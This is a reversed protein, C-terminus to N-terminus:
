AHDSGVITTACYRSPIRSPFRLQLQRNAILPIGLAISWRLSLIMTFEEFRPIESTRSVLRVGQPATAITAQVALTFLKYVHTVFIVYLGLTQGYGAGCRHGFRRM